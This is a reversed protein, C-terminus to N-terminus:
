LVFTLFLERIASICVSDKVVSKKSRQNERHMPIIFPNALTFAQPQQSFSSHLIFFSSDVNPPRLSLWNYLKSNRTLEDVELFFSKEKKARVGESEAQFARNIPTELTLALTLTFKRGECKDECWFGNSIGRTRDLCM